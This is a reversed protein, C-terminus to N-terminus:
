SVIKPLIMRGPTPVAIAAMPATSTAKGATFSNMWPGNQNSAFIKTKRNTYTHIRPVNGRNRYSWSIAKPQFNSSGTEIALTTKVANTMSRRPAFHRRLKGDKKHERHERHEARQAQDKLAM